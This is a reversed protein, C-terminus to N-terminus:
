AVRPPPSGTDVAPAGARRRTVRLPALGLPALLNLRLLVFHAVVPATVGAVTCLGAYLWPDPPVHLRVLLIRAASAALIHLIYITMSVKGLLCAFRQVSGGLGRALLFLLTIGCVSAPLAAAADSNMHDLLGSSPIFAALGAAAICGWLWDRGPGWALLRSSALIGFAFYPFAHLFQEVVFGPPLFNAAVFSVAASGLLLRPRSALAFGALQCLMLVYLFWFQSMPQWGLKLVDSIDARHNTYSSLAVLLGGQILSWLVYPYAITWLKGRLFGESQRALSTPLNVGALVFFLPMHFTYLGYDVWSWTPGTAIDASTLGRGVHGFVVCVIGIGRAADIWAVRSAPRAMLTDSM